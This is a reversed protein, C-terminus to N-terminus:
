RQEGSDLTNFRRQLHGMLKGRRKASRTKGAAGGTAEDVNMEDGEGVGRKSVLEISKTEDGVLSKIYKDLLEDSKEKEAAKKRVERIRGELEDLM